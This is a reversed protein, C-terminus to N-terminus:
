EHGFRKQRRVFCVNRVIIYIGGIACPILLTAFRFLLMSAAAQVQSVFKTMLILYVAEISGVGSPTPIAAALIYVIAVLSLSDLPTIAGSGALVLYPIIYYASLKIFNDFVLQVFLLKNTLLMKTEKQLAVLKEDLDSIKASQAPVKKKMWLLLYRILKYVLPSVCVLILAAVTGIGIVYGVTFYNRYESFYHHIWAQRLVLALLAYILITIKHIVYGVFYLGIGDSVPVQDLHLNYIASIGGASGLTVVRYFSAYLSNKLGKLYTYGETHRKALLYTIRGEMMQYLVASLFIAILISAKTNCVEGWIEQLSNRFIMYFVICILMFLVYRMYPKKKKM